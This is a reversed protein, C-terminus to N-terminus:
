MDIENEMEKKTNNRDKNILSIRELRENLEIVKETPNKEISEKEIIKKTKELISILVDSGKENSIYNDSEIIAEEKSKNKDKKVSNYKSEFDIMTAIEEKSFNYKELLKENIVCVVRDSKKINGVHPLIIEDTDFVLLGEHKGLYKLNRKENKNRIGIMKVTDGTKLDNVKDSSKKTNNNEKIQEEKEEAEPLAKNKNFMRKFASKIKAFIGTKKSQQKIEETENEQKENEKLVDKIETDKKIEEKEEKKNEEQMEDINYKAKLEELAKEKNILAILNAKRRNYESLVKKYDERLEPNILTDELHEEATKDDYIRPAFERQYIKKDEELEILAKRQNKIEAKRDQKTNILEIMYKKEKIENKLNQVYSEIKIKQEQTIESGEIEEELIEAHEIKEAVDKNLKELIEKKTNDEM